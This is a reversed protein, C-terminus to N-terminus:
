FKIGMSEGNDGLIVIKVVFFVCNLGFKYMVLMVVIILGFLVFFNYIFMVFYFLWFIRLWDLYM